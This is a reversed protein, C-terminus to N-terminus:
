SSKNNKEKKDEPQNKMTLGVVSLSLETKKDPIKLLASVGHYFRVM